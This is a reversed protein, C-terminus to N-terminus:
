KKIPDALDQLLTGSKQIELVDILTPGHQKDKNGPNRTFTVSSLPPLQETEAIACVSLRSDSVKGTVAVVQRGAGDEELGQTLLIALHNYAKSLAIHDMQASAVPPGSAARGLQVIQIATTLARIKCEVETFTPNM